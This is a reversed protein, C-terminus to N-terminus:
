KDLLSLEYTASLYETYETINTAVAARFLRAAKAKDGAALAMEGLYFDVECMDRPAGWPESHPPMVIQDETKDGRLVSVLPGPWASLDWNDTVRVLDARADKGARFDAIYLWLAVYDGGGKPALSLAQEMDALAASTQGAYLESRGRALYVNSDANKRRISEGFDSIADSWQHAAAHSIARSQYYPGAADTDGALAIAKTFDAQADAFKLLSDRVIGRSNYLSANQPSAAIAGTWAEEALAYNHETEMMGAFRSYESDLTADLKVARDLDALAAEGDGKVVGVLARAVYARARASDPLDPLALAAAIKEDATDLDHREMGEMAAKLLTREDDPLAISARGGPPILALNYEYSDRIKLLADAAEKRLAGTCLATDLTSTFERHLTLRPGTSAWQAVYRIHATDITVDSPPTNFQRGPPADITADEVEHGSFCPTPDSDAIKKNGLPGVLQSGPVGLVNYPGPVEFPRGDLLRPDSTVAFDGSLSYSDAIPYPPPISLSGTGTLGRAQLLASAARDAGTAQIALAAQRLETAYPGAATVTSKGAIAGKDDIAATTPALAPGQTTIRVVPKGYEEFPITGFAAVGATTDAYLNFEPLWTIAHDLNALAAVDPLEYSNKANILVVDGEIGKAKLLAVYLAVHDKCDGYGNTLVTGADHSVLAGAGIEVAVYRIHQSVWEYLRKAQERRDTVGSTIEDAMAQIQPTVQLKPQEQAAYLRALTDYDKLSSIVVRPSHDEPALLSNDESLPVPAAYHWSYSTRAGQDHKEYQMDHTEVYLKMSNPAVVSIEVDNYPILRSFPMSIEFAGPLYPQKERYRYTLDAIDGAELQPFVVVKQRHDDFMPLDPAGPVPQTYIAATDVPIRRGDAKITSASLIDVDSMSESYPVPEQGVQSAAAANNALVQAHVTETMLGDPGVEIDYSLQKVIAPPASPAADAGGPATQAHAASTALCVPLLGLAVLARLRLHM